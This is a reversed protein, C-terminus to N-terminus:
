AFARLDPQRALVAMPRDSALVEGITAAARRLHRHRRDYEHEVSLRCRVRASPADVPRLGRWADAACDRWRRSGIHDASELWFDDRSSLDPM